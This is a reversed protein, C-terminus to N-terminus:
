DAAIFRGLEKQTSSCQHLRRIRLCQVGVRDWERSMYSTRSSAMTAILTGDVALLATRVDYMLDDAAILQFEWDRQRSLAAWTTATRVLDLVAGRHLLTRTATGEPTYHPHIESSITLTRLKQLCGQHLAELLTRSRRAGSYHFYLTLEELYRVSRLLDLLLNDALTVNLTLVRLLCSQQQVWTSFPLFDECEIRATVHLATVALFSASHLLKMDFFKARFETQMRINLFTLQHLAIPQEIDYTSSSRITFSGSQLLHCQKLINLWIDGELAVYLLDLTTLQHWPFCTTFGSFGPVVADASIVLRQLCPASWTIGQDWAWDDLGLFPLHICLTALIPFGLFGDLLAGLHAQSIEIDLLQLSDAYPKVLFDLIPLEQWRHYNSSGRRLSLSIAGSNHARDMWRCMQEIHMKEKGGTYDAEPHVPFFAPGLVFKPHTWLKAMGLSIARWRRCVWSLTLPTSGPLFYLFIESMVESSLREISPRRLSSASTRSAEMSSSRVPQDKADRVLAELITIECQASQLQRLLNQLEQDASPDERLMGPPCM